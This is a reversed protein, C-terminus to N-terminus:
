FICPITTFNIELMGTGASPQQAPVFSRYVLDNFIIFRALLFFYYITAICTGAHGECAAPVASGLPLAILRTVAEPLHLHIVLGAADPGARSLLQAPSTGAAAAGPASHLCHGNSGAGAPDGPQLLLSRGPKPKLGRGNGGWFTELVM